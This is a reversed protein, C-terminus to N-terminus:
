DFTWSVSKDFEAREAPTMRARIVRISYGGMLKGNRTYNWDAVSDKHLVVPQGSVVNHIYEPENDVIGVLSDSRVTLHGVWM